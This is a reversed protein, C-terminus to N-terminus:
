AQFSAANSTVSERVVKRFDVTWAATEALKLAVDLKIQGPNAHEFRCESRSCGYAKSGGKKKGGLKSLLFWVCIGAKKSGVPSSGLVSQMSSSSKLSPVGDMESRSRKGKRSGRVSDDVDRIKAVVIGSSGTRLMLRAQTSVLRSHTEVDMLILRAGSEGFLWQEQM